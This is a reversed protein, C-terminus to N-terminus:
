MITIEGGNKAWLLKCVVDVESATSLLIRAYEVSFVPYNAESLEVYRTTEDLSTELSIFYQWHPYKM